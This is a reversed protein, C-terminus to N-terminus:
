KIDYNKTITVDGVKYSRTMGNEKYKVEDVPDVLVPCKHEAIQTTLKEVEFNAKRLKGELDTKDIRLLDVENSIKTFVAKEVFEGKQVRILVDVAVKMSEKDDLNYGNYDTMDGGTLYKQIFGTPNEWEKLEELDNPVNDMGNAKNKIVFHLHAFTTGSKGLTGIQDGEKVMDGSNVTITDCHDYGAYYTKGEKFFKLYIQKGFGTTSTKDTSVIEGDCIAYIPQGLDTNGGTKLNYDDGSHYYGARKEGFSSAIYWYKDFDAQTGTGIPYRM